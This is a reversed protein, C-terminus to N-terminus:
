EISERKVSHQKHKEITGPTLTGDPISPRTIRPVCAGHRQQLETDLGPLRSIVTLAKVMIRLTCRLGLPLNLEHNSRRKRKGAVKQAVVSM